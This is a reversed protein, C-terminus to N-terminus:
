GTLLQVLEVVLPMLRDLEAGARAIRFGHRRGWFAADVAHFQAWRGVRERDLGAAEAFVDLMRLAAKEPRDSAVLQPFRAKRLTGADYAPDGAYGKPDVALWPERDARLINRAHFDGHVVLDPQERGLERVTALAELVAATPLTDPLERMDRRLSEDWEEARDSLRPLAAPAPIALRRSLDGAVSAVVDNDAVERLTDPHARELLMAFHEDARAYLRVAGRGDWAEFADPEAVNGPHPFSVKVVAARRDQRVPVVLGVGGHAVAGDAVCGWRELLDAVLLPLGALWAEGREGERATTGRAFAEPIEIM